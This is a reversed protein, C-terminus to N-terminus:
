PSSGNATRAGRGAAQQRSWAAICALLADTDAPKIFHRDFGAATAAAEDQQQGYGTLALLLADRTAPARRLQRAVQYGDLVPLGIDLVVVDPRFSAALELAQAGDHATETEHGGM